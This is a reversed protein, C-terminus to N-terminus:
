KTVIWMIVGSITSGIVIGAIAYLLSPLRENKKEIAKQIKTMSEKLDGLLEFVRTFKEDTSAKNERLDQIHVTNDKTQTETKDLRLIINKIEAAINGFESEHKCKDHEAM